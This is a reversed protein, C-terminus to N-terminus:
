RVVEGEDQELRRLSPEIAAYSALAGLVASGFLFGLRAGVPLPVVGPFLAEFFVRAGELLVLALAGALLCQIAGLYLFPMRLFQDSAGVVKLIRLTDRRGVFLLRLTTLLVLGVAFASLVGVSLNALRVVELNRELTKMWQDGYVVEDVEEYGGLEHALQEVAGERSRHVPSLEVVLTHPLPNDGLATGIPFDGLDKELEALAEDKHVFTVAAIEGFGGLVEALERARSEGVGPALFVTIGKRAELGAAARRVNYTVLLVLGFLFFVASLAVVSALTTGRGRILYEWAERAFFQAQKM